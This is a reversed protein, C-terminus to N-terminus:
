KVRLTIIFFNIKGRNTKSLIARKLEQELTFTRFEQFASLISAILSL